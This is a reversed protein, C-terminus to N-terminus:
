WTGSPKKPCIGLLSIAPDFTYINILIKDWTAMKSELVSMGAGVQLLVTQVSCAVAKASSVVTRQTALSLLWNETNVRSSQWNSKVCQVNEEKIHKREKIKLNRPCQQTQTTKRRMSKERDRRTEKFSLCHVLVWNELSKETWPQQRPSRCIWM